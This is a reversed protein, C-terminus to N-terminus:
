YSAMDSSKIMWTEDKGILQEGDAWCIWSITNWRDGEMEGAVRLACGGGCGAGKLCSVHPENIASVEPMAKIAEGLESRLESADDQWLFQWDVAIMWYM